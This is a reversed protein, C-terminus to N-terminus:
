GTVPPPRRAAARARLAAAGFAPEANVAAAAATDVNLGPRTVVMTAQVTRRAGRALNGIRWLATGDSRISGSQAVSAIRGGDHPTEHVRVASATSGGVNRVTISIRV